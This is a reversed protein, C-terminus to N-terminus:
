FIFCEGMLFEITGQNRIRNGVMTDEFKRRKEQIGRIM